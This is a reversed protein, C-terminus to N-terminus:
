RRRWIDYIVYGIEIATAVIAIPVVILLVLFLGYPLHNGLITM